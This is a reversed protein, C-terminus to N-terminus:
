YGEYLLVKYVYRGDGTKLEKKVFPQTIFLYKMSVEAEIRVYTCCDSMRFSDYSGRTKGINLQILDEVRNLKTDERITLLFLRLYDHYNFYLRKDTNPQGESSIGIDLRWDGKMKYIPVSKGDMLDNVDIVAEGMGWGCMILNTIIPIGAGGTWIGAAATAIGTAKTKKAPDTYVHLTNLGFRFLLVEGKTLVKNLKQSSRGHLIYEVESEYFTDIKKKEDGHLNIDKVSKEGDALEPVSNKFTGMIYENIYISDRLDVAQGAIMKGINSILGLANEQFMGEEDYLDAEDGVHELDGDYVAEENKSAAEDEVAEQKDMYDSDLEALDATPVKTVSPLSEKAIGEVEYDIDQLLRKSIIEKVAEAKGKRPDEKKDGKAPKTYEYDIGTYGSVAELMEPPLGGSPLGGQEIKLNDMTSTVSELISSNGGIDRLMKEANEGELILEKLNDLETQLEDQFGNSISGEEGSFNDKLYQELENIAEQAKKGKEAIKTIESIADNNAKKYDNTMSNRLKYWLGGLQDKITSKSESLTEREDKLSDLQKKIENISDSDNSDDSNESESNESEAAKGDDDDYAALESELASISSDMSVISEELSSLTETMSNFDNFAAEWSGNSNFGNIFKEAEGGTGDVNKKLKQQSKDMKGLLKDIGVKQKYADSMKGVDKIASLKEIFGEVIAGPARYKMYELIQKKTVSNESLNYIPTVNVNEIRFGYLDTSGNYYEEDTPISLCCALYEEFHDELEAKDTQSLAFIGYDDKLKSSYDALLSGASSGAAKKVMTRGSNIRAIDVLLGALILISIMIIASFVTIQGSIGKRM